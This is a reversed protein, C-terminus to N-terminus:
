PSVRWGAFSDPLADLPLDLAWEPGVALSAGVAAATLAVLAWVGRRRLRPRRRRAAPPSPEADPVVAIRPDHDVDPPGSPPLVVQFVGDQRDPFDVIVRAGDDVANMLAHFVSVADCIAQTETTGRLFAIERLKATTAPNVTVTMVGNDLAEFEM